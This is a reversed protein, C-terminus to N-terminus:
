SFRVLIDRQSCFAGTREDNRINGAKEKHFQKGRKLM